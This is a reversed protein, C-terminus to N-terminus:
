GEDVVDAGALALGYAGYLALVGVGIGALEAPTTLLGLSCILTTAVAPAHSADLRVMGASTLAVSLVGAAGLRLVPVSLPASSSTVALGAALLRYSLAGALVGVAHGGLVRRATTGPGHPDRALLYATPGLSPFILPRGSLVALAAAVAVLGGAYSGSRLSQSM